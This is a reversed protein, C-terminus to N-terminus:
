ASLFRKQFMFKMHTAATTDTYTLKIRNSGSLLPFVLSSGSKLLDTRDTEIGGTSIHTIGRHRDRCDIRLVEGAQLTYGAIIEIKANSTLNEIKINKAPGHVEVVPYTLQGPNDIQIDSSLAGGALYTTDSLYVSDGLYLGSQETDQLISQTMATDYFYPDAAHFNLSLLHTLPDTEAQSELGGSYFCNLYVVTEDALEVKLKGWSTRAGYEFIQNVIGHLVENRQLRTKGHVILNVTVDRAPITVAVTEISGDAYQEDIYNVGPAEFGTRGYLEWVTKETEYNDLVVEVGKNTVYSLSGM